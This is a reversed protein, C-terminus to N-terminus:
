GVTVTWTVNLIDLAGKNIVAYTTRVLMTGAAAANLIGAEALAGTGVGAGFTATYTVIAAAVVTNALAVRAAEAALAVDGIVPATAGTGVAM